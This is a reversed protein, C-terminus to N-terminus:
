QEGEQLNFIENLEEIAELEDENWTINIDMTKGEQAEECKCQYHYIPEGTRRNRCYIYKEIEGANKIRGSKLFKDRLVEVEEKKKEQIWAINQKRM